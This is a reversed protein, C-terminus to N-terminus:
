LRRDISNCCSLCRQGLLLWARTLQSQVVQYTHEAVYTLDHSILNQWCSGDNCFCHQLLDAVIASFSVQSQYQLLNPKSPLFTLGVPGDQHLFLIHNKCFDLVESLYPLVSFFPPGDNVCILGENLSRM